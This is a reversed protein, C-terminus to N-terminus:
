NVQYSVYRLDNRKQLYIKNHSTSTSAPEQLLKRTTSRKDYAGM